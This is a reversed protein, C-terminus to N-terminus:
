KVYIMNNERNKKKVVEGREETISAGYQVNTMQVHWSCRVTKPEEFRPAKTPLIMLDIKPRVWKDWM